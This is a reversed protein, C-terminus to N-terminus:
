NVAHRLPLACVTGFVFNQSFLLHPNYPPMLLEPRQKIGKLIVETYQVLDKCLWISAPHGLIILIYLVYEFM